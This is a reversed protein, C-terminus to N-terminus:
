DSWILREAQLLDRAVPFDMSLEGRASRDIRVARMGIAIAGECYVPHDDILVADTANGGLVDLARRFIAADPKACGVECSLVAGDVLDLLGLERLLPRTNETCNSVFAARVGRKRLSRLFPIADKHLHTHSVLLRRDLDVLAGVLRADEDVDCSRLVSAYADAIPLLGDHLVAVLANVARNWDDVAVGAFASLGVAHAALDHSLVTDYVDILSFRVAEM